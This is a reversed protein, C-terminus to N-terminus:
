GHCVAEEQGDADRKQYGLTCLNKCLALKFGVLKSVLELLIDCQHSAIEVDGGEGRIIPLAVLLLLQVEIVRALEREDVFTEAALSKNRRRRRSLRIM